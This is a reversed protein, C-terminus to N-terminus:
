TVVETCSKFFIHITIYLSMKGTMIEEEDGHYLEEMESSIKQVDAERNMHIQVNVKDVTDERRSVQNELDAQPEEIDFAEEIQVEEEEINERQSVHNDVDTQLEQVDDAKEIYVIDESITSNDASDFAFSKKGNKSRRYKSIKQEYQSLNEVTIYEREEELLKINPTSRRSKKYKAVNSKRGRTKQIEESVNNTTKRRNIKNGKKNLSMKKAVKETQVRNLKVSSMDGLHQESGSNLNGLRQESGAFSDGNDTDLATETKSKNVLNVNKTIQKSKNGKMQVTDVQQDHYPSAITSEKSIKKKRGKKKKGAAKAGPNESLEKIQDEREKVTESKWTKSKKDKSKSLNIIDPIELATDINGTNPHQVVDQSLFL